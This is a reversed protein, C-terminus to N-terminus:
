LFKMQCMDNYFSKDINEEISLNIPYGLKFPDIGYGSLKERLFKLHSLHLEKDSIHIM